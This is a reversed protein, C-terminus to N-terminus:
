LVASQEVLGPFFLTSHFDCPPEELIRLWSRQFLQFSVRSRSLIYIFRIHYAYSTRLNQLFGFYYEQGPLPNRWDDMNRLSTFGDGQRFRYHFVGANHYPCFNAEELLNSVYCVLSCSSQRWNPLQYGIDTLSHMLLSATAQTVLRLLSLRPTLPGPM